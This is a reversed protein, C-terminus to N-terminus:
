SRDPVIEIGVAATEDRLLRCFERAVDQMHGRPFIDDHLKGEDAERWICRQAPGSEVLVMVVRDFATMGLHSIHFRSFTNAYVENRQVGDKGTLVPDVIRAFVDEAPLDMLEPENRDRPNSAFDALWSYSARLDVEDSWDGCPCAHLIFRVRGFVWGQTAGTFEAAIAFVAKDGAIIM